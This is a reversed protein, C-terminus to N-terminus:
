LAKKIIAETVRFPEERGGQSNNGKSVAALLSSSFYKKLQSAALTGDYGEVLTLATLQGIQVAIQHSNITKNLGRYTAM